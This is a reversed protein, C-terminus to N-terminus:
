APVCLREGEEQAVTPKKNALAPFPTCQSAPPLARPQRTAHRPPVLRPPEAHAAATTRAHTRCTVIASSAAAVPVDAWAWAWGGARAHGRVWASFSVTNGGPWHWAHRVPACAGGEKVNTLAQRARGPKWRHPLRACGNETVPTVVRWRQFPHAQIHGDVWRGRTM